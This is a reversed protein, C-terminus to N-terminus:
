GRYDGEGGAKLREWCWPRKWCIPEKCWTALTNSSWCWDKWLINLTSKRYSQSTQDGQLGFSEWSDEGVGCNLLMCIYFIYTYYTPNGPQETTFFRGPICSSRSIHTRDRPPFSVRSSPMTVWQLIRAQLIGHVSSGPPSGVIPNCLLQIRSLLMLLLM